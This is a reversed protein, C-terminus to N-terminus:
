RCPAEAGAVDLAGAVRRREHQAPPRRRCRARSTSTSSSRGTMPGSNVGSASTWAAMAPPRDDDGEPLRERPEDEDDVAHEDAGPSPRHSARAM